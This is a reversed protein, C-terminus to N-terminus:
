SEWLVFPEQILSGIYSVYYGRQMRAITSQLLIFILLPMFYKKKFIASFFKM